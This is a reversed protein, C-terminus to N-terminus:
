SRILNPTEGEAIPGFELSEPNNDRSGIGFPHSQLRGRYTFTEFGQTWVIQFYKYNALVLTSFLNYADSRQFISVRLFVGAGTGVTNMQYQNTPRQESTEERWEPEISIFQDVANLTTGVALSGNLAVTLGTVQLQTLHIGLMLPDVAM